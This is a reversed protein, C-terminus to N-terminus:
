FLDEVMAQLNEDYFLFNHTGGIDIGTNVSRVIEERSIPRLEKGAMVTKYGKNWFKEFTELFFPNMKIGQPQNVTGNIEILWLPKPNMELLLDSADLLRKEAGEIDVIILLRENLFRKGLVLDVTSTPVLCSFDEATGAWGKILSAGSGGGYIKMIGPRDSLAIPYAEFAADFNNASINNLLYQVNLEIPEFAIVPKGMSLSICAYYGINAGINILYDVNPLIKKVLRTEDPEYGGKEVALSGSFKFGMPTMQPSAIITPGYRVARYVAATRPYKKAAAKLIKRLKLM